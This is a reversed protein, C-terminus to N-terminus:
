SYFPMIATSLFILEALTFSDRISNAAMKANMSRRVIGQKAIACVASSPCCSECSLIWFASSTSEVGTDLIVCCAVGIACSASPMLVWPSSMSTWASEVTVVMDM